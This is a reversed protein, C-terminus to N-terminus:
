KKRREQRNSGPLILKLIDESQVPISAMTAGIAEQDLRTIRWAFPDVRGFTEAVPEDRGDSTALITGIHILSTELQYQPAQNPAHHYQVVTQISEPLHWSQTLARGVDTHTFGLIEHEAACLLDYDGNIICLIDRAQEPLQLYIPLRGIDHLMGLVFLREIHLVNCKMALATSVIGTFMSEGWFSVMDVLEGPVNEFTQCISTALVLNRLETTGIVTVARPITEIPVARGYFASNVIKLLRATLDTDQTIVKAIDHTSAHPSDVLRNLQLFVEPLAVLKDLDKVLEDATM